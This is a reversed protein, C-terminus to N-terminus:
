ETDGTLLNLIREIQIAMFLAAVAQEADEQGARKFIAVLEKRSVYEEPKDM